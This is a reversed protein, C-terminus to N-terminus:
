NTETTVQKRSRSPGETPDVRPVYGLKTRARMTLYDPCGGTSPLTRRPGAILSLDPIHDEDLPTETVIATEYGIGM